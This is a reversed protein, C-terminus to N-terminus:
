VLSNVHVRAKVGNLVAIFRGEDHGTRTLGHGIAFKLLAAVPQRMQQTALAQLAQVM